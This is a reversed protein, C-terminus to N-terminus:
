THTLRYEDSASHLSSTPRGELVGGRSGSSLDNEVRNSVSRLADVVDIGDRAIVKAECLTQCYVSGAPVYHEAELRIGLGGTWGPPAVVLYRALRDTM